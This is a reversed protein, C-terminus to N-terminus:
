YGKYPIANHYEDGRAERAHHDLVKVATTTLIHACAELISWVIKMIILKRQYIVLIVPPYLNLNM